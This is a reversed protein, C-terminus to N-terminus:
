ALPEVVVGVFGGAEVKKAVKEALIVDSRSDALRFMLLDRAKAPDIALKEFYQVDALPRGKSAALDAAAVLGLVNVVVFDLNREGTDAHTVVAPFTQLNDIGCSQLTEVLRKSMLNSGSYYDAFEVANEADPRFEYPWPLVLQTEDVREGDMLVEHLNDQEQMFGAGPALQVDLRYYM